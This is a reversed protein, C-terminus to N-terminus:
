ICLAGPGSVCIGARPRPQPDRQNLTAALADTRAQATSATSGKALRGLGALNGLAPDGDHSALDLPVLIADDRGLFHKPMIGVIRHPENNLLITAGVADRSGGFRRLWVEDGLIAVREDGPRGDSPGFVRGLQPPTGLMSFLGTTVTYGFIREPEGDGAVDFQHPGYGEFREFVGQAQWGRILHANLINGGAGHPGDLGMVQVLRDGDLYPPPRFLVGDVVTFVTTTAGIGLGLTSLATITFWPNGRFLRLAFRLDQVLRDFWGGAWM